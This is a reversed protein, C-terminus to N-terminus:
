KRCIICNNNVIWKILCTYHGLEKKCKNCKIITMNKKIETICILCEENKDNKLIEYNKKKIQNKINEIKLFIIEIKKGYKNIFLFPAM